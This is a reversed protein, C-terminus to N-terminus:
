LQSIMASVTSKRLRALSSLALVAVPFPYPLSQSSSIGKQACRFDLTRRRFGGPREPQETAPLSPACRRECVFAPDQSGVNPIHHSFALANRCSTCYAPVNGRCFVMITCRVRAARGPAPLIANQDPVHAATTDPQWVCSVRGWFASRHLCGDSPRSHRSELASDPVAVTEQLRFVVGARM